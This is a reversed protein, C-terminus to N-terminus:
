TETVLWASVALWWAESNMCRIMRQPDVSKDTGWGGALKGSFWKQNGGGGAQGGAVVGLDSERVNIVKIM